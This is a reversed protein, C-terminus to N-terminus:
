ELVDNKKTVTQEHSQTQPPQSERDSRAKALREDLSIRKKEPELKHQDLESIIETNTTQTSPSKPTTSIISTVSPASSLNVNQQLLEAQLKQYITDIDSFILNLGTRNLSLVRKASSIIDQELNHPIRVENNSYKEFFQNLIYNETIPFM